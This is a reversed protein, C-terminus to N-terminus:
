GLRRNMQRIRAVLTRMVQLAFFPTQQVMYLFRKEDIAALRCKTQAVATASRADTDILSMEGFFGGADITELTRDGLRIEVTGELVVFMENGPEGRSFILDGVGVEIIKPSNEFLRVLNM